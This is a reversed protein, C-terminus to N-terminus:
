ISNERLVNPGLILQRRRPDMRSYATIKGPTISKERKRKTCCVSHKEGIKGRWLGAFWQDSQYIESIAAVHRAWLM